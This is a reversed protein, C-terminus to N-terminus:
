SAPKIYFNLTDYRIAVVFVYSLSHQQVACLFVIAAHLISPSKEKNNVNYVYKKTNWTCILFSQHWLEAPGSFSALEVVTESQM